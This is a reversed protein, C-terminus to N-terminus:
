SKGALGLCGTVDRINKGKGEGMGSKAGADLVLSRAMHWPGDAVLEGIWQFNASQVM